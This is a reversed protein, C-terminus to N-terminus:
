SNLCWNFIRLVAKRSLTLMKYGEFLFNTAIQMSYCYCFFTPLLGETEAAEGMAFM